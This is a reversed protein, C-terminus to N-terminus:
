KDGLVKYELCINENPQHLVTSETLSGDKLKYLYTTSRANGAMMEIKDVVGERACTVKIFLILYIIIAIFVIPLLSMVIGLLRNM